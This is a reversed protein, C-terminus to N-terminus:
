LWVSLALFYLGLYYLILRAVDRSKSVKERQHIHNCALLMDSIAFLLTGAAMFFTGFSSPLMLALAVMAFLIIAYLIFLVAQKGMQLLPKRFIFFATLLLVILVYISFLKPRAMQLYAIIFSIHGLIFAAVGIPVKKGMMIDGVLYFILGALMWWFPIFGNVLCGNLCFVIPVLTCLNKVIFCQDAEGKKKLILYFPLLVLFLIAAPFLYLLNHWLLNM